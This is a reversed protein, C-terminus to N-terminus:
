RRDIVTNVSAREAPEWGAAGLSARYVLNTRLRTALRRVCWASWDNAGVCQGNSPLFGITVLAGSWVRRSAMGTALGM